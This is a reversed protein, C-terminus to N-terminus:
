SWRELWVHEWTDKARLADASPAELMVAPTPDSFFDGHGYAAVGDGTEVWCEGMGAFPAGPEGGTVSAAIACAVVEGEGAAFTAAKPLPKGMKLPIGTVDGIAWVRDFRTRLTSRDVPIWGGEGALGAARVVRPARHPAVFALLDYAAEAGNGFHLRRGAADARVVQHEPHYGIHKSALLDRVGASVAPGAVGMPAPEAAYLDVQIRDRVGRRRLSGEMLMAAEYPAAPCKYAPAATLIVLRGRDLRALDDRLAAAGALTYFSHGAEGLGPVASPDLDAGLAVVLRDAELERAGAVVRRREPDVREIEATIVEIGRRALNAVPRAIEEPRREGVIVRLLSAGLVFRESREVLTIRHEAPLLERLRTAVVWGGVGGGLVVVHSGM